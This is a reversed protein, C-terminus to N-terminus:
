DLPHNTFIGRHIYKFSRWSYHFANIWSSYIMLEYNIISFHSESIHFFNWLYFITPSSYTAELFFWKLFNKRRSLYPKTVSHTNSIAMFYWTESKNEKIVMELKWTLTVFWIQECQRVLINLLGKIYRNWFKEASYLILSGFRLLWKILNAFESTQCIYKLNKLGAM